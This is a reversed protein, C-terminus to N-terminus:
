VCSKLWRLFIKLEPKSPGLRTVLYYALSDDKLEGLAVIKQSCITSLKVTADRMTDLTAVADQQDQLTPLPLRLNKSDPVRMHQVTSGSALAHIQQQLPESQLAYLLFRRNLKTPEARYSVLRQGLFVHDDSELMGVEGM